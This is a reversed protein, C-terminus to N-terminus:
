IKPKSSTPPTYNPLPLPDGTYTITQSPHSPMFPLKPPPPLPSPPLTTFFFFDASHVELDPCMVQEVDNEPTYIDTEGALWATMVCRRHRYFSISLNKQAPLRRPFPRSVTSM